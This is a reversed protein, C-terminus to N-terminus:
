EAAAGREVIIRGRGRRVLYGGHPIRLKDQLALKSLIEAIMEANPDSGGTSSSGNDALWQAFAKGAIEDGLFKRLANLKRREGKSLDKENFGPTPKRPM